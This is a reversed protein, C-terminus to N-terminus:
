EEPFFEESVPDWEYFIGDRWEGWYGCDYVSFGSSRRLNKIHINLQCVSWEPISSNRINRVAGRVPQGLYVVWFDTGDYIQVEDPLTFHRPNRV